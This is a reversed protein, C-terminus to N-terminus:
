QTSRIPSSTYLLIPSEKPLTFSTNSVPEFSTKDQANYLSKYKISWHSDSTSSYKPVELKKDLTNYIIALGEIKSVPNDARFTKDSYGHIIWLSFSKMIVSEFTTGRIDTLQKFIKLEDPSYNSDPKYDASAQSIWFVSSIFNWTTEVTTGTWTEFQEISVNNMVDKTPINDLVASVSSGFANGVFWALILSSIIVKQKLNKKITM